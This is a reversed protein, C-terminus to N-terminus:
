YYYLFISLSTSFDFVGPFCKCCLIKVEPDGLVQGSFITYVFHELHPILFLPLSYILFVLILILCCTWILTCLRWRALPGFGNATRIKICERHGVLERSARKFCLCTCPPPPSPPTPPCIKYSTTTKKKKVGSAIRGPYILINM